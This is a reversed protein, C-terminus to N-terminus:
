VRQSSIRNIYQGQLRIQGMVYIGDGVSYAAGEENHSYCAIYGGDPSTYQNVTPLVREEYGETPWNTVTGDPGIYVKFDAPLANYKFDENLM